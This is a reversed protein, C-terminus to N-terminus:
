SQWQLIRMLHHSVNLPALTYSSHPFYRTVNDLSISLGLHSWVQPYVRISSKFMDFKVSPVAIFWSCRLTALVKCCQCLGHIPNNSIIMLVTRASFRRLHHSINLLFATCPSHPFNHFVNHPPCCHLAFNHSVEQPSHSINHFQPSCKLTIHCQSVNITAVNHSSNHSIDHPHIPLTFCWLSAVTRPLITPSMSLLFPSMLYQLPAVAHPLISPSM